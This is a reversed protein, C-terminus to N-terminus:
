SSFFVFNCDRIEEKFDMNKKEGQNEGTASTM